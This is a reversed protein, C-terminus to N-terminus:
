IIRPSFNQGFSSSYCLSSCDTVLRANLSEQGLLMAFLIVLVLWLADKWIVFLYCNEKCGEINYITLLYKCFLRQIYIDLHTCNIDRPVEVEISHGM